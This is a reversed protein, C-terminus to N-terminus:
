ARAASFCGRDALFSSSNKFRTSAHRSPAHAAPRRRSRRSGSRDPMPWAVPRARVTRSSYSSADHNGSCTTAYSGARRAPRSSSLVHPEVQCVVHEVQFGFRDVIGAHSAFREARADCRDSPAPFSASGRAAARRAGVPVRSTKGVTSPLFHVAFRKRSRTQSRGDFCRHRVIRRGSVSRPRHKSPNVNWMSRWVAADSMASAPISRPRRPQADPVCRRRRATGCSRGGGTRPRSARAPSAALPARAPRTPRPLSLPRRPVGRLHM